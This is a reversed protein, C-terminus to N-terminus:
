GMARERAKEREKERKSKGESNKKRNWANGGRLGDGELENRRREKAGLQLERETKSSQGHETNLGRVCGRESVFLWGRVDQSVARQKM